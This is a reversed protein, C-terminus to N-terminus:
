LFLPPSTTLNRVASLGFRGVNVEIQEMLQVEVESTTGGGSEITSNAFSQDHGPVM